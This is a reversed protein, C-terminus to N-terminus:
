ASLKLIKRQGNVVKEIMPKIILNKHVVLLQDVIKKNYSGVYIEPTREIDMGYCMVPFLPEDSGINEDNLSYSDRYYDLYKNTTYNYIDDIYLEDNLGITGTLRFGKPLRIDLSYYAALEHNSSEFRWADYLGIINKTKEWLTKPKDYLWTAEFRDGYVCETIYVPENEYFM